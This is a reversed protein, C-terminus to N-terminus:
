PSAAGSAASARVWTCILCNNLAALVLVVKRGWTAQREGGVGSSWDQYFKPLKALQQSTLSSCSIPQEGISALALRAEQATEAEFRAQRGAYKIKEVVNSLGTVRGYM